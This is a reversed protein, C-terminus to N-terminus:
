PAESTEAIGAAHAARTPRYRMARKGDPGPVSDRQRTWGLRLLCEVVAKTERDGWRDLHVGLLYELVHHIQCWTKGVLYERVQELWAHEVQREEQEARAISEEDGELHWREGAKFRVVAEAWLQDRDRALRELDIISLVRVPWFRRGGTPDHLYDSRNGTGIFVCGRMVREAHIRWKGVHRDFPQSIFKKVREVKAGLFADMEEIEYIWVGQLQAAADRSGLEALEVAFNGEGALLRVAQSKRRGQEGELVIMTDVQCGPLYARAVASIMWKPGVLEAWPTDECSLHTALFRDLRKVGDWVLRELYDRVSHHRHKMAVLRVAARVDLIKVDIDWTEQLWEKVRSEDDDSWDEGSVRAIPVPRRVVISGRFDDWALAGWWRRDYELLVRANRLLPLVPARGKRSPGLLLFSRLDADYQAAEDREVREAERDARRLRADEISAVVTPRMVGDKDVRVAV